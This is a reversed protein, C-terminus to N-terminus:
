IVFLLLLGIFFSVASMSVPMNLFMAFTVLVVGVLRIIIEWWFFKNEIRQKKKSKSEAM